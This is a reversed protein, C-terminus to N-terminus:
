ATAENGIKEHCQQILGVITKKMSRRTSSLGAKRPVIENFILRGITTVLDGREAEETKKVGASHRVVILEQLHLNNRTIRWLRKMPARTIRCRKKLEM